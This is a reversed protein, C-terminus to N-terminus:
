VVGLVRNVLANVFGFRSGQFASETRRRAHDRAIEINGAAKAIQVPAQDQWLDLIAQIRELEEPDLWIGGCSGCRDVIVATDGSFNIAQMSARCSPCALHKEREGHPVGFSPKHQRLWTDVEGSFEKERSTVIRQMAAPEVFEGQCSDCTHIPAGEYIIPRLSGPCSPCRM